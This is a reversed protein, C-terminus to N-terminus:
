PALRAVFGGAPRLKVTLVDSPSLDQTRRDAGDDRSPDDYVLKAHVTKALFDLKIKVEREKEGNMVGVWWADGSRRAYAVVEGIETCELVRTEDWVVPITQFLDELINGVYFQYQDAFHQVPSLIVVAQALEHPWTFRSSKLEKPNMMVPTIDAPGALPRAFPLTVDQALPMVRKYRSMHYEDGRVAERTIDHPYTRRLGTPKVSGHFNLLLKLEACDQIAGMYWQMIDATAGPIFDIKIGDAGCAKIKELYARRPGAQRMEKSDVWAITKVGVSKGYDIAEKLLAWQDKGSEKWVRWGDDILYYEWKLRAAADYWNKQDAYKPAGVSWWQWLCRGPKVWSFDSGPAPAPCLNTLLDSNVLGTLDKAVVLSRWPSAPKGMYTGNLVGPRNEDARRAIDWGKKATTFVVSFVDDKKQLVMDAFNECDAESISLYHGPLKITIPAMVPKNEPVGSLPTAHSLGEYCGSFESWVIKTAEAPVRWGTSEGDVRKAGEPLIYRVAAGDDYARVVLSFKKGSTELAISVEHAHNRAQPHNGLIAYTEDIVQVASQSTIKADKGLDAGDVTLGLPSPPLVQQGDAWVAHSLRGDATVGVSVALNRGPSRLVIDQVPGIPGKELSMAPSSATAQPADACLVPLYPLVLGAAITLIAITRVNTKM